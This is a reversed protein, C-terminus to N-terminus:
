ISLTAHAQRQNHSFFTCFEEIMASATPLAGAGPGSLTLDGVIDTQIHIANDVGEIAFLPHDESILLPEVTATLVGNAKEITAIHKIRKQQTSQLDEAKIATIGRRHIHQQLPQKGFSVDSLIMLKFLADFGEVDNTPDSEAYGLDQAQQLARQFPLQKERMETLIYNSTGNLIAQIKQIQNVRLLQQITQIVPIGGATTADFGLAVGHYEALLKLEKGHTAFMEKNATIVHKGAKICRKVHSCAPDKGVIAEFVVDITPNDIVHQIDTTVVIDEQIDQYKDPDQIVIISVEVKKGTVDNLQQQHSHITDYVGKGVTGFGIFAVNIENM